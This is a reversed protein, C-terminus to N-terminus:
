LLTSMRKVSENPFFFFKMHWRLPFASLSSTQSFYKVIQWVQILLMTNKVEGKLFFFFCHPCPISIHFSVFHIELGKQWKCVSYLRIEVMGWPRQYTDVEEGSITIIVNLLYQNLLFRGLDSFTKKGWSTRKIVHISDVRLFFSLFSLLFSPIFLSLFSLHFLFPFFFTFTEYDFLM